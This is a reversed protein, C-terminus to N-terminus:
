QQVSRITFTGAVSQLVVCFALPRYQYQFAITGKPSIRVSLGDKDALESKASYPKGYLKSLQTNSLAM